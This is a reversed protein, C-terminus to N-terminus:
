TTTLKTMDTADDSFNDGDTPFGLGSIINTLCAFVFESSYPPAASLALGCRRQVRLIVLKVMLLLEEIVVEAQKLIGSEQSRQSQRKGQKLSHCWARHFGAETCIELTSVTESYSEEDPNIYLCLPKPRAVRLFTPLTFQRSYGQMKTAIRIQMLGNHDSLKKCCEGVHAMLNPVLIIFSCMIQRILHLVIHLNHMLGLLVVM